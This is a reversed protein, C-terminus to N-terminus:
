PTLEKIEFDGFRGQLWGYLQNLGEQSMRQEGRYGALLVGEVRDALYLPIAALSSLRESILIPYNYMEQPDLGEAVSSVLMPNGTKFVIGAVGKGSQLVIRKYRNNLNGSAYKWTLIFDNVASEAFALSVFDYGMQERLQDILVQYCSSNPNM